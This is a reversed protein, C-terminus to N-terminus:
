VNRWRQGTLIRGVQRRSIGLIEARKTITMEPTRRTWERIFVVIEPTLIPHVGAERRLKIQKAYIELRPEQFEALTVFRINSPAIFFGGEDIHKGTACMPCAWHETEINWRGGARARKCARIFGERTMKTPINPSIPCMRGTLSKKDMDLRKKHAAYGNNTSM